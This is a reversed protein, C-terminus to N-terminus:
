NSTEVLPSEPRCHYLPFCSRHLRVKCISCKQRASSRRCYKCCGRSCQEPFHVSDYRSSLRSIKATKASKDVESSHDKAGRKKASKLRTSKRTTGHGDVDDPDDSDEDPPQEYDSDATGDGDVGDFGLAPEELEENKAMCPSIGSATVMMPEMEFHRSPLSTPLTFMSTLDMVPHSSTCIVTANVASTADTSPLIDSIKEAEASIGEDAPLNTQMCTEGYDAECKNGDVKGNGVDDGDAKAEDTGDQFVGAHDLLKMLDDGDALYQRGIITEVFSSSVPNEDVYVTPILLSGSQGNCVCDEARIRISKSLKPFGGRLDLQYFLIIEASHDIAKRWSTPPVSSDIGISEVLKKYSVGPVATNRLSKRVGCAPGVGDPSFFVSNKKPRGRGRKFPLSM